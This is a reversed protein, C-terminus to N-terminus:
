FDYRVKGLFTDSDFGSKSLREYSAGLTVAGLKYDAGIGLAYSDRVPQAGSVVFAQGGQIFASTSQSRDAAFDHYAMAKLEPTLTGAGLQLDGAIRLGAGLEAMEYRQKQISLAASSGKETYSDISINSYRAAIRPEVILDPRVQIGYGALLNLGLMDSDYDGKATTGVIHRKSENDNVSYTLSGDVFLRGHEWSGYLTLANGDVDVTNGSDSKVDTTMYSYALGLTTADNLKGDFGIALGNTDADYGEIGSREDQNASNNLIQLWAGTEALAEGSSMGSRLSSTRNAVANAVVSQGSLAAQTSGGNIEPLLQKALSAREEPSAYVFAQYVPDDAQMKSLVSVLSLFSAQGNADAGSQEIIEEVQEEKLMGLVAVLQNGEQQYGKVELLYSLSNVSLGENELKGANVLIYRQGDGGPAFDTPRAELNIRSGEAFHATDSVDLIPRNADTSPTVYLQLNGEAAVDLSGNISSHEKDFVLYSQPGVKVLGGAAADTGVTRINSGGFNAYGLVNVAGVNLIDGQIEGGRWDLTTNAGAGLIAAEAGRIVGNNQNIVFPAADPTSGIEIGYRAGSITGSNVIGSQQSLLPNGALPQRGDIYLATAAEGLAEITGSNVLSNNKSASISVGHSGEGTALVTGHNVISSVESDEVNVGVAGAGNVSITGGNILNGGLKSDVVNIARGAQGEVNITGDNRIDGRVASSDIHYGSPGKASLEDFAGTVSITGRNNLGGNLTSADIEYAISGKGGLSLTGLNTLSGFVVTKSSLDFGTSHDSTSSLTAGNIVDGWVESGNFEVMDGAMASTGILTFGDIRDQGYVLAESRGDMDVDAAMASVSAASIALALLTKQVVTKQM